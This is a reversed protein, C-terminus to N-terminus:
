KKLSAAVAKQLNAKDGKPAPPVSKQKPTKTAKAAAKALKAQEYETKKQLRESRKKKAKADAEQRRALQAPTPPGDSQALFIGATAAVGVFGLLAAMVMAFQTLWMLFGVCLWLAVVALLRLIM